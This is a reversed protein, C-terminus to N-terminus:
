GRMKNYDAIAADEQEEAAAIKVADLGMLVPGLAKGLADAFVELFGGDWQAPDTIQGTYVLIANPINTLVVKRPPSFGIDNDVSFRNYRPDYNPFFAPLRKVSRIKIADAPYEYEYNWPLAPYAPTWPKVIYSPPHAPSEKLLTGQVTREAFDWDGAYLLHDRTQGYVDLAKKAAESGDMLSGVRMKYGVKALAYNVIGAPSTITQSM